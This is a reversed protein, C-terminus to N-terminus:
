QMEHKLSGPTTAGNWGIPGTLYNYKGVSATYQLNATKAGLRLSCTRCPQVYLPLTM